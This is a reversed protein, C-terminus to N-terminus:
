DGNAKRGIVKSSTQPEGTDLPFTKLLLSLRTACTFCVGNTGAATNWVLIFSDHEKDRRCVVCHM